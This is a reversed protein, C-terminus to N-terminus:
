IPSRISQPNSLHAAFPLAIEAYNRSHAYHDDKSGKIYKCFVHGESDKDYHRVLCTLHDRYEFSVNAPITITNNRFRGLSLDLWSTRDVTITPEDYLKEKPESIQKGKIGTGYFCMKVHGRFRSAFEFAKRREPNADIVCAHVRWKQMLTDLYDFHETKGIELARPRANESLDVHINNGLIWEDIEYHLTKGVDVGMTIIHYGSLRRIDRLGISDLDGNLYQGKCSEIQHDTLKSGAVIHPVGIKNNWFIQEEAPDRLSRLYSKALDIPSVTSSYLHNIYFGRSGSNDKTNRNPHEAVWKGDTLWEFKTRHDLENHCEKCKLYSNNVNPDEISEATIELCEPFILETQRGCKPCPFFFHEQTSQQYYINIGRNDSTPNSILWYQRTKQGSARDFALSVNDQDMEDVEDLVILGAPISKLGARSRSGRIYLNTSGARKHGINKVDSFLGSLHTSLELASDFRSASFDGADPTKAPLVYLVDTSEVDIKFFTINLVTETFGVQTAKQGVNMEAQSDHMEKLWPHYRFTWPGPYPRSMVRVAEAYRSPSTLSRRKLGNAIREAFLNALKHNALM